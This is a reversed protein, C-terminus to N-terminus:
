DTRVNHRHVRCANRQEGRGGRPHIGESHLRRRRHAHYQDVLQVDGSVHAHCQRRFIRCSCPSQVHQVCIRHRPRQRGQRLYSKGGGKKKRKKETAHLTARENYMVERVWTRPLRGLSFRKLTMLKKGRKEETAHLTVRDSYMVEQVCKRLVRGLSLRKLTM